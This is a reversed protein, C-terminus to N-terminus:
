LLIRVKLQREEEWFVTVGTIHHAAEWIAQLVEQFWQQLSTHGGSSCQYM